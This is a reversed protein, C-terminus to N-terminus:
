NGYPSKVLFNELSSERLFLNMKRGLELSVEQVDSIIDKALSYNGEAVSIEFSEWAMAEWDKNTEM